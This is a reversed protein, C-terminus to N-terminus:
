EEEEIVEEDESDDFMKSFDFAEFSGNMMMAMPLMSSIGNSNGKKMMENVMMLPMLKKASFNGYSTDGYPSVIKSYFYSSGWFMYRHPVIVKISSDEYSLVKIENKAAEIVCVPKGSVLIIDGKAVKNTPIAFFMDDGIDFVFNSCNVLNGTKVNYAKYGDATKIAIGNPSLRCMGPAISGFMKNLDNMM